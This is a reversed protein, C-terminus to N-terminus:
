HSSSCMDVAGRLLAKSEIVDALWKEKFVTDGPTHVLRNSEVVFLVEVPLTQPKVKSISVAFYVSATGQIPRQPNPTSFRARYHYFTYYDEETTYIFDLSYLWCPQVEWTQIYERIQQKGVDVTFDKSAVWSAKISCDGEQEQTVTHRHRELLAKVLLASERAYNLQEEM